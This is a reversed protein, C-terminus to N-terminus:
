KPPDTLLLLPNPILETPTGDVAIMIRMLTELTPNNAGREIDGIYGPSMGVAIALEFQTLGKRKRLATLKEGLLKKADAYITEIPKDPTMSNVFIRPYDQM